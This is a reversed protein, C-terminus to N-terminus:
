AGVRLSLVLPLAELRILSGLGFSQGSLNTFRDLKFVVGCGQTSNIHSLIM